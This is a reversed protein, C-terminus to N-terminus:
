RPTSTLFYHWSIGGPYFTIHMADETLSVVKYRSSRLVSPNVAYAPFAKNMELWTVGSEDNVIKWTAENSPTYETTIFSGSPDGDTFESALSENMFSAGKNDLYLKGSPYFILDDDYLHSSLSNPAPAWWENWTQEEPGCGIHGALSGDIRWTKGNVDNNTLYLEFIDRHITFPIEVTESLGGSNYVQVNMIYDGSRGVEKSFELGTQNIGAPICVFRGICEPTELKVHIINENEDDIVISVQIDEKGIITGLGGKSSEDPKCSTSVLAVGVMLSIIIYTAINKM